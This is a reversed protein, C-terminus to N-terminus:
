QGFIAADTKAAAEPRRARIQHAYIDATVSVSSHGMQRSVYLLDEGQDIKLSGFTHRLDHWRVKGIVPLKAEARAGEASKLIEAFDRKVVNDPNLPTGTSTSFVLGKKGSMMYLELLEKRLEPSMDIDRTSKKSKPLVFVHKAEGEQVAHYKGFKWYLERRVKIVNNEFDIQEWDLGFQEGRRMGTAIATAIMAHPKGECAKLVSQIEDPKLARGKQEKDARPKDVGEMPSHKLYGEAVAKSMIEGLLNLVNRVTKRSLKNKRGAGNQQLLKASFSNIEAPTIALMPYNKFAPLLHLAVISRYANYTSPKFQEPLLHATQWHELYESFTAKKIEHYTGDRVEPSLDDLYNEADRKRDWTRWQQKGNIRIITKYRKRGDKTETTLITGRAM